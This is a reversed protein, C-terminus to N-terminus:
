FDNQKNLTQTRQFVSSCSNSSNKTRTHRRPSACSVIFIVTFVVFLRFALPFNEEEASLPVQVYSRDTKFKSCNKTWELYTEEHVPVKPHEDMFRKGKELEEPDGDILRMCDIAKTKGINSFKIEPKLKFLNKMSARKMFMTSHNEASKLKSRSWRKVGDKNGHYHPLQKILEYISHNRYAVDVEKLSPELQGHIQLRWIIYNAFLLFLNIYILSLSGRLVLIRM